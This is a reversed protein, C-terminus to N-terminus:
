AKRRRIMGLGALGASLLAMSAPEPVAAPRADYTYIVTVVGSAVTDFSTTVNGGGGMTSTGTLTAATFSLPGAQFATLNSPITTTTSTPSFPGFSATAGPALGTFTQSSAFNTNLGNLGATASSITLTTNENLTFTEAMGGSNTVTGGFNGTGNLSLQVGTLTGITPNFSQLTLTGTTFDTKTPGFASSFSVVAASAMGHTTLLIATTLLAHKVLTVVITGRLPAVLLGLRDEIV